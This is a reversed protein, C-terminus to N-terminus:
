RWHNAGEAMDALAVSIAEPAVFNAATCGVGIVCATAMDKGRADDISAGAKGDEHCRASDMAALTSGVGAARPPSRAGALGILAAVLLALLVHRGFWSIM